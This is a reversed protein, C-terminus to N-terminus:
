GTVKKQMDQVISDLEQITKHLHKFVEEKEQLTRSHQYVEFLGLIRAIPARLVHANYYAYESLQQNRQELKQTRDLVMQELSNNMEQIVQKQRELIANKLEIEYNAQRLLRNRRYIVFLSTIMIGLFLLCLILIIRQLKILKKQAIQKQEAEALSIKYNFYELKKAIMEREVKLKSKFLSDKIELAKKMQHYSYTYDQKKAYIDALLVHLNTQRELDKFQQSLSLAKKAFHEAKESNNQHLYVQAIVEYASSANRVSEVNLDLAKQAYSKAKEYQKLELYLHALNVLTLQTNVHKPYQTLLKESQLYYFECSDWRKRHYHTNGINLYTTGLGVYNEKEKFIQAAKQYYSVAKDWNEEASYLNALNVYTMSLRDTQNLERFMEASRLYCNVASDNHGLIKFNVGLSNQIIAQYSKLNAKQAIEACKTLIKLTTDPCKQMYANASDFLVKIKLSDNNPYKKSIEAILHSANIDKHQGWLLQTFNFLM